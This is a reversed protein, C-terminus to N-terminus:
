DILVNVASRTRDIAVASARDFANQAKEYPGAQAKAAFQDLGGMPNMVPTTAHRGEVVVSAASDMRPAPDRDPDSAGGLQFGGILVAGVALAGLNHFEFM